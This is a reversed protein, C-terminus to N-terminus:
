SCNERVSENDRRATTKNPIIVKIEGNVDEKLLGREIMREKILKCWTSKGSRRSNIVLYKKSDDLIMEDIYKDVVEIMKENSFLQKTSNNAKERLANLEKETCM